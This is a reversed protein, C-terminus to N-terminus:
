KETSKSTVSDNEPSTDTNLLAGVTDGPNETPKDYNAPKLNARVSGSGNLSSAANSKIKMEYGGQEIIKATIIGLTAPAFAAFLAALAIIIGAITGVVKLMRATQEVQAVKGFLDEIRRQLMLPSFVQETMNQLLKTEIKHQGKSAGSYIKESDRDLDAYVILFAPEGRELIVEAPGANYVSFLLKGKWGPDVHFGSVNILGKFKYGARMSILALADNPVSVVEETMWFAFQGPKIRLTNNPSDGLVSVLPDTPASTAFKDSTAFVQQGVCLRYSACDINGLNFKQILDPLEKALKEGSWFAM